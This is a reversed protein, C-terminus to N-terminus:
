KGKKNNAAEGLAAGTRQNSADQKGIATQRSTPIMM